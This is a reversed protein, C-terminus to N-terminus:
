PIGVGRILTSKRLGKGSNKGVSRVMYTCEIRIRSRRSIMRLHPKFGYGNTLGVAGM